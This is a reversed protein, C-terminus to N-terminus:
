RASAVKDFIENFAKVAAGPGDSHAWVGAAVAIFDAGAEVIPRCNEITIGGIAVCPVLMSEQWQELLEPEAVHKRQKTTSDFFAGFAVYNAGAEGAEMALHKSAHCTVGVIADTGLLSRAEGYPTDTQGVHVGDCDAKAALDARDNMILAVDRDHCISRVRDATDLIVEDEVDKLRLQVCAVDGGDLAAALADAFSPLADGYIDPPTILYLRCRLRDDKDAM